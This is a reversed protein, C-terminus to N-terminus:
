RCSNEKGTMRTHESHRADVYKTPAEPTPAAPPAVTPTAPPAVTPTAPAVPKPAAPAVPKPAPPVPKAPQSPIWESYMLGSQQARPPSSKGSHMGYYTCDESDTNLFCLSKSM